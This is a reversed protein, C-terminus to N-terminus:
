EGNLTNESLSTSALEENSVSLLQCIEDKSYAERHLVEDVLELM